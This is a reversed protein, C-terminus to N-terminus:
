AIFRGSAICGPSVQMIKLPNENTFLDTRGPGANVIDAGGSGANVIDLRGSGQM